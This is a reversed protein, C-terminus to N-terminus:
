RILGVERVPLGRRAAALDAYYAELPVRELHIALETEAVPGDAPCRTLFFRPYLRARGCGALSRSVAAPRRGRRAHTM